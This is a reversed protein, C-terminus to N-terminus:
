FPNININLETGASAVTTKIGTLNEIRDIFNAENSNGDSLHLLVINRVKSLDNALLMKEVTDISMHSKAVRNRVVAPIRDNIINDDMIEDDFNAEIMIHNLNDFKYKIFHTDTAFLLTGIEPHRILYGLPEMADHEVVFSMIQFGGLKFKHGHETLLPLHNSKIMLADMTGASMYCDIGRNLFENVYASHDQHEHSVILGSIKLIDFDLAKQVESFRVGAEIILASTDSELVYCNGKSSSGLIKLKM